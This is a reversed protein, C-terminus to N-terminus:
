RSAFQNALAKVMRREICQHQGHGHGPLTRQLLVSPAQVTHMGTLGIHPDDIKHVGPM